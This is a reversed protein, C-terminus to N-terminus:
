AAGGSADALPPFHDRFLASVNLQHLRARLSATQADGHRLADLIGKHEEILSRVDINPLTLTVFTRAFPELQDFVREVAHNDSTTAIIRHFRADAETMAAHDGSHLHRRMEDYADQLEDLTTDNMRPTALEAALADIQARVVSVDALDKSTPMRVRAGRRSTITVIGIAALDRLAERIPSQSTGLEKAVQLEIIREGPKYHGGMIRELLLRKISTSLLEGGFDPSTSSDGM